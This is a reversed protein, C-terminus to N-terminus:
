PMAGTRTLRRFRLVLLTAYVATGISLGTWVGIAGLGSHLGLLWSLPFGLLWYGIGAFLLPVRTDKLGRLGGVAISQMADTV